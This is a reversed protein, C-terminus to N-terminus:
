MVAARLGLPCPRSFAGTLTLGFWGASVVAFRGYEIYYVGGTRVDVAAEWGPPLKRTKAASAAAAPATASPEGAVSGDTSPATAAAAPGPQDGNIAVSGEMATSTSSEAASPATVDAPAAPAAENAAGLAPSSETSSPAATADKARKSSGSSSAKRGARPKRPKEATTTAADGAAGADAAALQQTAAAELSSQLLITQFFDDVKTPQGADKAQRVALALLLRLEDSSTRVFGHRSVLVLDNTNAALPL